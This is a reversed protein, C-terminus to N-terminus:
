RKIGIARQKLRKANKATRTRYPTLAKSMTAETAKGLIQPLSLPRATLARGFPSITASALAARWLETNVRMAFSWPALAIQLQSERWAAGKESVMRKSESLQWPSLSGWVPTLQLTRLYITEISAVYTQVAQHFLNLNFRWLISPYESARKHRCPGCAATVRLM